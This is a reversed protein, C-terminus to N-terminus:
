NNSAVAKNRRWLGLGPSGMALLGLTGPEPVATQGALIRQGVVTNYAAEAFSVSFWVSGRPTANVTMRAWGYAIQPAGTEPDYSIPFRLGIYGNKVNAWPGAASTFSSFRLQGGSTLNPNIIGCGDRGYQYFSLGAGTLASYGPYIIDASAPNGLALLGVGAAGAAMVYSALRGELRAPLRQPVTASRPNDSITPKVPWKKM